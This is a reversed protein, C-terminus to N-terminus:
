FLVMHLCLIIFQNVSVQDIHDMLMNIAKTTNLEMFYILHDKLIDVLRRDKLKVINCKVLTFVEPDRLRVLINIAQEFSGM